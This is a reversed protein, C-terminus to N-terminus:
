INLSTKTAKTLMTYFSSEWTLPKAVNLAELFREKTVSGPDDFSRTDVLVVDVDYSTLKKCIKITKTEWMDGDLALAVPTNNILISSLLKSDESLDSGLLPVANDGCKFMDFVGECIVLRKSWDINLENFIISTKDHDPNDYKPRKNKDITRAVFYNLDGNSDFSPVIVRRYWRPESSVCIKYYWLDRETLGRDFLYRITARIDPDVNATALFKFDKPLEVKQESPDQSGLVSRSDNQLFLSVYERLKEANGFKRILPVLNRAKYGCVWCHNRDDDLRIALKKKSSDRPDCIPCKVEINKCNSALRGSGFLSEIFKVKDGLSVIM